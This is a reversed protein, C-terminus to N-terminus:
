VAIEECSEAGCEDCITYDYVCHLVWQQAKTDWQAYADKLINESHCFRCIYKVRM